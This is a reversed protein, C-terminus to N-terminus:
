NTPRQGKQWRVVDEEASRWEGRDAQALIRQFRGYEADSMQKEGRRAEIQERCATLWEKNQASVATRVAMTLRLNDPAVPTEGCGSFLILVFLAGLRVFRGGM